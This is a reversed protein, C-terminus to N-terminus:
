FNKGREHGGDGYKQSIDGSKFTKIPFILIYYNYAVSFVM